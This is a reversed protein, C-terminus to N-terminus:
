VKLYKETIVAMETQGKVVKQYARSLRPFKQWLDMQGMETRMVGDITLHAAKILRNADSDPALNPNLCGLRTDM